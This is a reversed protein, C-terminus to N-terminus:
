LKATSIYYYKDDKQCIAISRTEEEIVYVQHYDSGIQRCADLTQSAQNAPEAAIANALGLGVVVMLTTGILAPQSNM